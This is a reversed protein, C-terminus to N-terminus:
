NVEKLVQSNNQEFESRSPWWRVKVSGITYESAPRNSGWGGVKISKVICLHDRPRTIPFDIYGDAFKLHLSGGSVVTLEGVRFQSKLDEIGKVNPLRERLRVMLHESGVVDVIM